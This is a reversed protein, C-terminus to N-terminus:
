RLGKTMKALGEMSLRDVARNGKLMGSISLDEDIELWHITLPYLVVNERQEPTADMLRPYWDIPTGITRGDALTVWMKGDHFEVSVPADNDM